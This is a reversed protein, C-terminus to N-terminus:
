VSYSASRASSTPVASGSGVTDKGSAGIVEGTVRSGSLVHFCKVEHLEYSVGMGEAGSVSGRRSFSRCRMATGAHDNGDRQIM